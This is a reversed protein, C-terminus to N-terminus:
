QLDMAYREAFWFFDYRELSVHLGSSICISILALAPQTEPGVTGQLQAGIPM